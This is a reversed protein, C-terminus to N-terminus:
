EMNQRTQYLLFAERLTTQLTNGPVPKALFKYIAGENIAEILTGMDSHGSLVIRLTDPYLERVRKLFDTGKMEPMLQDAVVM